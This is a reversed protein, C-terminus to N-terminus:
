IDGDKTVKYLEAGNMINHYSSFEYEPTICDTDAGGAFGNGTFPLEETKYGQNFIEGNIEM